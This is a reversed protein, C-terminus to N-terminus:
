ADARLARLPQLEFEFIRGYFDLAAAVDGVEVAVHNSGILRGRGPM